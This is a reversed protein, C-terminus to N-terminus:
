LLTDRKQRHIRKGLLYGLGEQLQRYLLTDRTETSTNEQGVLLGARGAITQVSSHRENRDINEQGVLLGARGTITWLPSHRM